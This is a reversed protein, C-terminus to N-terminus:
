ETMLISSIYSDWAKELSKDLTFTNMSTASIISLASNEYRINIYLGSIDNENYTLEYDTLTKNVLATDAKLVIKFRLPTKTGKILEYCIPKIASWYSLTKSPLLDYEDPTYFDKQIHGNITFTNYTTITAEEMLFTDFDAKVLLKSMFVKIDTISISNM